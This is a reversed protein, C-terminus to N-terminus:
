EHIGIGNDDIKLYATFDTAWDLVAGVFNDAETGRFSVIVCDDNWFLFTETETSDFARFDFPLGQKGVAIRMFAEDAYAIFAFEALWWANILSFANEDPRFPFARWNDFYSFKLNPPAVNALTFPPVPKTTQNDM